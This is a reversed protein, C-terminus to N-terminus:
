AARRVGATTHNAHETGVMQPVHSLPQRMVPLDAALDPWYALAAAVLADDDARDAQELADVAQEADQSQQCCPWVHGAEVYREVAGCFPCLDSPM